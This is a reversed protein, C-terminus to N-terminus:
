PFAPRRSRDGPAHATDATRCLCLLIFPDLAPLTELEPVFYSRYGLSEMKGAFDLPGIVSAMSVGNYQVGFEISPM